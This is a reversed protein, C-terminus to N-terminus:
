GCRFKRGATKKEAETSTATQELATANQLVMDLGTIYSVM